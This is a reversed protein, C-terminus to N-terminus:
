PMEWDSGDRSQPISGRRERAAKVYREHKQLWKETDRRITEAMFSFAMQTELTMRPHPPLGATGTQKAQAAAFEFLASLLEGRQEAPLRAIHPYMDLYLLFSKKETM